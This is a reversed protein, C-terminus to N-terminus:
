YVKGANVSAIKHFVESFDAYVLDPKRDGAVPHLMQKHDFFEAVPIGHKKFNSLELKAVSLDVEGLQAGYEIQRQLTEERWNLLIVGDVKGILELYESVDRM